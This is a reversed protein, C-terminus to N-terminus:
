FRNKQVYKGFLSTTGKEGGKATESFPFLKAGARIAREKERKSLVVKAITFTGREGSGGYSLLALLGGAM